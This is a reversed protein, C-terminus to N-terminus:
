RQDAAKMAAEYRETLSPLLRFSPEWDHRADSHMGKTIEDDLDRVVEQYAQTRLSLRQRYMSEHDPFQSCLFGYAPLESILIVVKREAREPQFEVLDDIALRASELALFLM